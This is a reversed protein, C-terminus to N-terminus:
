VRWQLFNRLLREGSAASKEPHFQVGIHNATAVAASFAEDYTCSAVTQAVVPLRYSHVFYFYSGATIGTFVPHEKMTEIVSWGMHPVKQPVKFREVRGPIIGLCVADNEESSDCLLQQGLCISLFPARVERLVADLGHARLHAMASGAEGVGPFIVRDASLIEDPKDSIVFREGLRGLANAVSRVNGANYRVILVTM